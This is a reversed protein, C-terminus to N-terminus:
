EDVVRLFKYMAVFKEDGESAFEVDAGIELTEQISSVLDEKLLKQQAADGTPAEVRLVLREQPQERKRVLYYQKLFFEPMGYLVEEVESSFVTRDGVRIAHATREAIGLRTGTRGCGCTGTVTYGMDGSRFRVLPTAKLVLSTVVIEGVRGTGTLNEGSDPDIVEVFFADEPFHFTETQATCNASPLGADTMPYADFLKAGWLAEVGKRLSSTVHQGAMFLYKFNPLYEQLKEGYKQTVQWLPRSSLYMGDIDMWRSLVEIPFVEEGPAPMSFHYRKIGGTRLGELLTTSFTNWSGFTGIAVTHGRRAGLQYWMRASLEGLTQLDDETLGYLTPVGTTGATRLLHVIDERSVCCLGGFPDATDDREQQLEEKTTFPVKEAFDKPDRIADPELGTAGFKKRYFPANQGVYALRDLLRRFQLERMRDAPLTEMEENWYVTETTM